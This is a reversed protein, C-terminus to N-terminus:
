GERIELNEKEFIKKVSMINKDLEKQSLTHDVARFVVSITISTFGTKINKGSYVDVINVYEVDKIAKIQKIIRGIEKGRGVLVSFDKRSAPFNTGLVSRWDRPYSNVANYLKGLDIEAWYAQQDVGYSATVKKRLLGFVGIIEDDVMIRAGQGSYIIDSFDEEATLRQYKIVSDDIELHWLLEELVGKFTHFDVMRKDMYDEKNIKGTFVISLTEREQFTDNEKLFSVGTEFLKANSQQHSFNYGLTKMTTMLLSPRLVSIDKSLPRLLEVRRKDWMHTEDLGLNKVEDPDILSLPLIENFGASTMLNRCKYRFRQYDDRKDGFSKIEPLKSPILEYSNIRGIEEILDVEREVDPRYTPIKVMWTKSESNFFVEFGLTRLSREIQEYTYEMGLLRNM